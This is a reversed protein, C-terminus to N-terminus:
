AASPVFTMSMLLPQNSMGYVTIISRYLWGGAVPCRDLHDHDGDYLVTEWAPIPAEGPPKLPDAM